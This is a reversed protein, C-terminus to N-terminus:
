ISETGVIDNMLVDMYLFHSMVALEGFAVAPVIRYDSGIEVLNMKVNYVFLGVGVLM